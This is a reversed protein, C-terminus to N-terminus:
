VLSYHAIDKSQGLVAQVSKIAALMALESSQKSIFQGVGVGNAGAAIAMPVTEPSLGSATILYVHDLNKRLEITAALTISAKEILGLASSSKMETAGETQIIDVGMTELKQALSIQEGLALHGPITVSILASKRRALVLETWNLVEAASPYIDEKHLAEYNGLELVTAGLKEAQYLEEPNISSVVIAIENNAEKVAAEIIAPDACIDVCHAKAFKACKVIQLVNNQDFNNIGAIVKLFNKNKLAEVVIEKNRM